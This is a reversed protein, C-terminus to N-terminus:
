LTRLAAVEIVAIAFFLASVQLETDALGILPLGGTSAVRIQAGAHVVIKQRRVM